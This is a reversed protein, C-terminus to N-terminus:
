KWCRGYIWLLIRKGFGKGKIGDYIIASIKLCKTKLKEEL